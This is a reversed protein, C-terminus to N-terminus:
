QLIKRDGNIVACFPIYYIYYNKVIESQWAKLDSVNIWAGINDQKISNLWDEKKQDLSVSVIELGKHAYKKYLEILKPHGARCPACWTAWFDIIIVKKKKLSSLKFEKGDATAMTFDEFVKEKAIKNKRNIEKQINEVLNDKRKEPSLMAMYRETADEGVWNYVSFIIAPMCKMDPYKKVISDTYAIATKQQIGPVKSSPDPLFSNNAMETLRSFVGAETPGSKLNVNLIISKDWARRDESCNFVYDGGELWVWTLSSSDTKIYTMNPALVEGSIEFTGDSKIAATFKGVSINKSNTLLSVKGSITFKQQALLSVTQLLCVMITLLTRM